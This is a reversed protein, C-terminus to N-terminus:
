RKGSATSPGLLNASSKVLSGHSSLPKERVRVGERSLVKPMAPPAVANLALGLMMANPLLRLSRYLSGTGQMNIDLLSRLTLSVSAGSILLALVLWNSVSTQISEIGVNGLLRTICLGLAVVCAIASPLVSFSNQEGRVHTYVSTGIGLSSCVIMLWTLRSEAQEVVEILAHGPTDRWIKWFALTLVLFVMALRWVQSSAATPVAAARLPVAVVRGTGTSTRLDANSHRGEVPSTGLQAPGLGASSTRMGAVSPLNTLSARSQREVIGKAIGPTSERVPSDHLQSVALGSLSSGSNRPNTSSTWRAQGPMSPRADLALEIDPGPTPIDIDNPPRNRGTNRPLSPMEDPSLDLEPPSSLIDTRGKAIPASSERSRPPLDSKRRNVRLKDLEKALEGATSYRANKDRRLCKTVVEVYEYSVHPAAEYLPIPSESAVKVMFANSNEAKFPLTGSAAEYLIVGLAWVDCRADLNSAGVVQEPSMFAPTGMAIGPATLRMDAQPGLVQSIGFDLLKPIVKGNEEHLFINDPKLDRHIVGRDHAAGVAEAIPVIVDLIKDIPLIRGNERLLQRFDKGQLYEQVIFPTGDEDTSIDLVDVVHPHRVRNAARGEQLFRQKLEDNAVCEKRLVKIAVTRGILQNEARYVDGMGGGGLRKQLLYKGGLVEGERSPADAEGM